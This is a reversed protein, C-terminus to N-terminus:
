RLAQSAAEIRELIEAAEAENALRVRGDESVHTPIFTFDLLTKGQFRVTLIVGQQHDNLDQDFVFNGLGYFVWVGDLTQYGQVVHTHNGVVLDAGAAVIKQALQRQIWTPTAQDEPGWHPMFIVVDAVQRALQIARIINEENLRAIGPKEATAFVGGQEHQGLSVVGFRVGNASLVIPQLAETENKGAGVTLIGVRQFNALTEFFAQDGCTTLGCDKIHNTAVSMADFGARALADANRPDGVLVFTPVCGTRPAIESMTANFTGIAFDAAQLIHRVEEYPYDYNQLKDIAAQVCRAPVINGTFLLTTVPISTPTPSPALTPKPANPAHSRLQSTPTSRASSPTTATASPATSPEPSLRLPDPLPTACAALTIVSVLLPPFFRLFM